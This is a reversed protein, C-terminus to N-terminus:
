VYGPRFVGGSFPGRAACDTTYPPPPDQKTKVTAAIDGLLQYAPTATSRPRPPAGQRRSSTRMRPMMVSHRTGDLDDVVVRGPGANESIHSDCEALRDAVHRNADVM